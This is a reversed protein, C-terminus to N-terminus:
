WLWCSPTKHAALWLETKIVGECLGGFFSGLPRTPPNLFPVKQYIVEKGRVDYFRSGHMVAVVLLNHRVRASPTQQAALLRQSRHCSCELGRTPDVSTSDFSRYMRWLDMIWAERLDATFCRQLRKLSAAHRLVAQDYNKQRVKSASRTSTCNGFSYFPLADLM